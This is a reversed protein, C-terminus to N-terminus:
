RGEAATLGPCRDAVPSGPDLFRWSRINSTLTCVSGLAALCTIEKMM